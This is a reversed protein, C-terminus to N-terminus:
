STVSVPVEADVAVAVRQGGDDRGSGFADAYDAQGLGRATVTFSGFNLFSLAGSLNPSVPLQQLINVPVTYQGLSTKVICIFVAGTLGTPTSGSYSLGQITLYTEPEGGTWRITLPTNRNITSFAEPNTIVFDSKVNLTGSFAGVQTGGPGSLSYQGANLYTNALNTTGYTPGSVQFGQRPIAQTGNPGVATLQAGGDLNTYTLLPWPNKVLDTYNLAICGDVAPTPDIFGPPLIYHLMNSLDPGAIRSFQGGMSDSKTSTTASSYATSRNLTLTGSVYSGRASFTEIEQATLAMGDSGDGGGGGGTNPTTCTSGSASVPITTSNGAVGNTTITVSVTCSYSGTDLTPVLVNIQDLGPFETRGRYVVTAAKGGITVAVNVSTLDGSANAGTQSVTEDKTTPGVGSGYFVIYQGPNTANTTSLEQYAQNHVRALSTGPTTLTGFSSKVITIALPASNVGNKEIVITGGGTPTASPVIGAVQTPTVYYIPAYNIAGNVTFRIRVGGLTTALPVSQLNTTQASLSSGTIAIISGQAIPINGGYNNFFGSILPTQCFAAGASLALLALMHKM